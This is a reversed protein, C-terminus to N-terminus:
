FIFKCERLEYGYILLNAKSAEISHILAKQRLNTNILVSIAGIKGLGLWLGVYEPKNEMLLCVPDGKKLGYKHAFTNAVKNAFDDLKM